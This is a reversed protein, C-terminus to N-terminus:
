GRYGVGKLYGEDFADRFFRFDLYLKITREVFDVLEARKRCYLLKGEKVINYSFRIPADNMVVLDIEETKFTGTFIGILALHKEFRQKKDLRESLLAAFDLDSLPKLVGEAGSGFIFLAEVSKDASIKDVLTPIRDLVRDPLRQGERIM